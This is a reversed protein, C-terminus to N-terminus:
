PRPRAFRPSEGSLIERKEDASLVTDIHATTYVPEGGTGFRIFDLDTVQAHAFADAENKSTASLEIRIRRTQVQDIFVEFRREQGVRHAIRAAELHVQGISDIDLGTDEENMGFFTSVSETVEFRFALDGRREHDPLLRETLEYDGCLLLHIDALDLALVIETIDIDVPEDESPFDDEGDRYHQAIYKGVINRQAYFAPDLPNNLPDTSTTSVALM